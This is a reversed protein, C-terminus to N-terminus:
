ESSHGEPSSEEKLREIEERLREIEKKSTTLETMRTEAQRFVEEEYNDIQLRQENYRDIFQAFSPFILEMAAKAVPREAAYAVFLYLFSM